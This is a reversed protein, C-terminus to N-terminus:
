KRIDQQTLVECLETNIFWKVRKLFEDNVQTYYSLKRSLPWNAILTLFWMEEM